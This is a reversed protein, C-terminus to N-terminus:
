KVENKAAWPWLDRTDKPDMRTASRVLAVCGNKNGPGDFDLAGEDMCAAKAAVRTAAGWDDM